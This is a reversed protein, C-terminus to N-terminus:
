GPLGCRVSTWEPPLCSIWGSYPVACARRVRVLPLFGATLFLEFFRNQATSVQLPQLRYVGWLSPPPAAPSLASRGQTESIAAELSQNSPGAPRSKQPAQSTSLQKKRSQEKVVSYPLFLFTPPLDKIQWATEQFPSQPELSMAS